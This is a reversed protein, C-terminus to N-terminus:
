APENVFVPLSYSLPTQFGAEPWTVSVDYRSGGVSIEIAVDGAAGPPLKGTIQRQWQHLDDAARETATCSNGRDACGHNRPKGSYAHRALPNARIREAMDAALQVASVRNAANRGAKISEIYLISIGLMGTSLVALAVLAEILTAGRGGATLRLAPM